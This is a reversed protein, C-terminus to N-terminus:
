PKTLLIFKIISDEALLLRNPYLAWHPQRAYHDLFSRKLELYTQVLGFLVAHSESKIGGSTM